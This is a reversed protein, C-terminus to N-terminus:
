LFNKVCCIPLFRRGRNTRQSRFPTLALVVKSASATQRTALRDRIQELIEHKGRDETRVVESLAEDSNRIAEGVFHRPGSPSTAMIALAYYQETYYHVSVGAFLSNSSNSLDVLSQYRNTSPTVPSSCVTDSQFMQAPALATAHV